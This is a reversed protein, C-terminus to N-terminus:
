SVGIQLSMSWNLGLIYRVLVVHSVEGVSEGNQSFALAERAGDM